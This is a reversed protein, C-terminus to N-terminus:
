QMPSHTTCAHVDHLLLLQTSSDSGFRGPLHQMPLLQGGPNLKTDGILSDTGTYESDKESRWARM